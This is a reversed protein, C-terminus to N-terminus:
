DNEWIKLIKLKWQLINQEAFDKLFKKILFVKKTNMQEAMKSMKWNRRKDGVLLMVTFM